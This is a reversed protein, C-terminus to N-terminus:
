RLPDLRFFTAFQAYLSPFRRAVLAPTEFFAEALVAFFEAPNESAYPDIETEEGREEAADVEACFDDYAALLTEEWASQAARTPLPPQGDADGNRMDLKHVFEHIVVNYGDGAMQVDRWSVLVPGGGWAEGSALEDYEHIIGDEDQISRPIVFEDPYVIIGVWDDYWDLGLRLVPLCAQIAITLCIHDDLELGGVATFEKTALFAECLGHLTALDNSSLRTIFPLGAVCEQWLADPIERRESRGILRGLLRGIV